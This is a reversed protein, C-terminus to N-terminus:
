FPHEIEDIEILQKICARIVNSPSSGYYRKGFYQILRRTRPFVAFSFPEHKGISEEIKPQRRLICLHEMAIQIGRGAGGHVASLENLLAIEDATLSVSIVQTKAREFRGERGARKAQM